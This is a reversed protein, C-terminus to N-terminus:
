RRDRELDFIVKEIYWKETRGPYKVKLRQIQLQLSKEAQEMSSLFMLQRYKQKLHYIEIRPKVIIAIVILFIIIAVYVM